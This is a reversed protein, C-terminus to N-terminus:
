RRRRRRQRPERIRGTTPQLDIENLCQYADDLGRRMLEEFLNLGESRTDDYRQLTLSINVFHPGNMYIPSSYWPTNFNADSLIAECVSLITRRQHPLIGALHVVLDSTYRGTLLIPHMAVTQLFRETIADAPFDDTAWFVSGIAEAIAQNARPALQCLIAAAKLRWEPEDWLHAATFAVGILTQEVEDSMPRELERDLASAASPHKEPYQVSLTLLEGYAQFRKSWDSDRLLRLQGKLVTEDLLHTIRALLRVGEESSRVSPYREFLREVLKIGREIDCGNIDLWRFASCYALWTRESIVREVHEEVADLWKETAAPVRMLYGHTLAELTWFSRDTDVLGGTPGWLIPTIGADEDTQESRVFISHQVDWPCALWDELLQCMSDPLGLGERCRNYLLSSAAERFQESNAGLIALESVVQFIEEDALESEALESMLRAIVSELNQVVLQPLLEVIRNPHEKAVVALERVLDDRDYERPDHHEDASDVNIDNSKGDLLEIVEEDSATLIQEKTLPSTGCIFGGRVRHRRSPWIQQEEGVLSQVRESRLQLPISKLLKKRREEEWVIQEDIRKVHAFYYSWDFITNEMESLQKSNLYPSVASVLQCSHYMEGQSNSWLCFRRPDNSLFEMIEGALESAGVALGQAILAQLAGSEVKWSHRTTQLFEQPHQRACERVATEIAAAVPHHIHEDEDRDFAMCTGGFTNVVTSPSGLYDSKAFATFWPWIERLFETPAAEAIAPLEHWGHNGELVRRANNRQRQLTGEDAEQDESDGAASDAAIADSLSKQLAAAVVRPALAPQDKSIVYVIDEVWLLRGGPSRRVLTCVRDVAQSDWGNMERLCRHTLEDFEPKPMMYRDILRLCDDRAFDWAQNIVAVMPWLDDIPWQFVGPFHTSQFAQFWQRHGCIAILVRKRDEVSELRSALLEVEYERPDDVQGLFDILLFRIHLRLGGEFLQVLEQRYTAPDAKRLYKLVSWLTPRVFLAHQREQVYEFLSDDTMSFYRAKAHEWVTQHHFGVRAGERMLIGVAVLEEITRLSEQLRAAPVGLEDPDIWLKEQEMLIRTMQQLLIRKEDTDIKRQWVDDLMEQYSDFVDERGTEHYNTLFLNLFQPTRLLERFRASWGGSNEIGVHDLETQIKSWEPLQLDIREANFVQLRTDHRFEFERCSCILHVNPIDRCRRMLELIVNLRESRLDILDCVADLQDIILLLPRENVISSICKDLRDPLGMLKSLDDFRELTTPLYDVKVALVQYDHNSAWETLRALLASKGSGPPGLLITTDGEKSQIRTKLETLEPREIWRGTRLRQNWNLLPASFEQFRAKITERQDQKASARQELSSAPFANIAALLVLTALHDPNEFFNLTHRKQLEDKFRRLQKADDGTDIDKVTCPHSDAISFVIIEKKQKRACEYEVWTYSKQYRPPKFGYRHGIIGIYVDALELEKLCKELPPRRDAIFEEMVIPRFGASRLAWAVKERHEALDRWTSSLFVTPVEVPM